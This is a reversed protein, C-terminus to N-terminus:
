QYTVTFTAAANAVGPTVSADTQLYRAKLPIAYNGDAATTQWKVRSSLPLPQDDYLLQLAVGKAASTDASLNLLGRSPDKANGDIQFNIAVGKQCLVPISFARTNKDTPWTGPGNFARANVTGMDVSIAKSGLTCSVTNVAFTGINIRSEPSFWTTKNNKLIFSAVNLSVVQGTGTVEATKYFTVFFKAYMPQASWIGNISCMRENNPNETDNGTVWYIKPACTPFQGAVAYGIGAINTSYIRRGDFTGVYTGYGKLGFDQWTLRPSTNVCRYAPVLDTAIATGIESGVPLDRQVVLNPPQITSLSTVVQCQYAFAGKAGAFVLGIAVRMLVTRM